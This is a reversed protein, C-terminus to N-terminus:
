DILDIAQQQLEKSVDYYRTFAKSNAVHGSMSAIIASDIKGFMNGVFSRRAMHSSAIDCLRVQEEKRTTPNLRTILRTLEAQEFLDKLYTNYKQDSIFPLIRGDPQDYKKLIELATQSLPVSVVVPKDDKTKRPIYSLVGNTINARTLKCLDGVRAGILCQFVFIDRVKILSETKPLYNYLIDREAKSIYIPNTYIESPIDYNEFPYHLNIGKELFDAKCYNWFARTLKIIAHATNIGRPHKKDSLLFSEFAKLTDSNFNKFSLRKDFKQWHNKASKIHKRRGESFKTETAYRDWMPFFELTKNETQTDDTKLCAKNLEIIITNKDPVGEFLKDLTARIKTLRNNVINYQVTQKGETASSNKRMQGAEFNWKSKAPNQWDVDMRYGTFYFFRSGSFRIDAFLPVNSQIIQGNKDKRKEPSFKLTHKM